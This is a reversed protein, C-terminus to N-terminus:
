PTRDQQDGHQEFQRNRQAEHARYEHAKKGRRLCKRTSAPDVQHFRTAQAIIRGLELGDEGVLAHHVVDDEHHAGRKGDRESRANM